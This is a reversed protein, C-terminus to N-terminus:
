APPPLYATPTFGSGAPELIWTSGKKSEREPGILASMVDGHTCLVATEAAVEELLALAVAAGAGEALEAREEIPLGLRRALPAVTELCRSYPSTVVRTVRYIELAEVLGEAQARGKDDLLRLRDDGRWSRRSGASAHRVLIIPM